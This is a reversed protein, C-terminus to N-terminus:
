FSRKPPCRSRSLRPRGIGSWREGRRRRCRRLRSHRRARGLRAREAGLQAPNRQCEHRLGRPSSRPGEIRGAASVWSAVSHTSGSRWGTSTAVLSGQRSLARRPKRIFYQSYYRDECLSTEPYACVSLSWRMALRSGFPPRRDSTRRATPKTPFAVPPMPDPSRALFRAASQCLRLRFLASM